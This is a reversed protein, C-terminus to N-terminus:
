RNNYKTEKAISNELISYSTDSSIKVDYPRPWSETFTADTVTTPEPILVRQYVNPYKRMMKVAFDFHSANTVAPRTAHKLGNSFGARYALMGVMGILITICVVLCTSQIATINEM